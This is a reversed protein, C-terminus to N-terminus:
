GLINCYPPLLHAAALTAGCCAACWPRPRTLFGQGCRMQNVSRGGGRCIYLHGKLSAMGSQLSGQVRQVTTEEKFVGQYLPCLHPVQEVLQAEYMSLNEVLILVRSYIMSQLPACLGAHETMMVLVSGCRCSTRCYRLCTTMMLPREAVCCGFSWSGSPGCTLRPDGAQPQWGM